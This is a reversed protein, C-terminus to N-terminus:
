QIADRDVWGIWDFDSIKCRSSPIVRRTGTTVDLVELSTLSKNFICVPQKKYLLLYKSDPSWSVYGGGYQGLGKQNSPENADVLVIRKSDVITRGELVLAIWRGDPSWRAWQDQSSISRQDPPLTLFRAYEPGLGSAIQSAGTKLNM